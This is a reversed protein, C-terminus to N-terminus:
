DNRGFFDPASARCLDCDICQTDVYWKGPVNGNTKEDKNAM